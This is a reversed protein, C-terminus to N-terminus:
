WKTVAATHQNLIKQLAWEGKYVFDENSIQGVRSQSRLDQNKAEILKVCYACDTEPNIAAPDHENLMKHRAERALIAKKESDEM